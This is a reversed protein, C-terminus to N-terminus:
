KIDFSKRGASTGDFSVEVAYPGKPWPTPKLIHFETQAPGTPALQQTDEAVLLTDKGDQFTWRATLATGTSAGESAIAVYITDRPGFSAQPAVVKKDPTLAKGLEFSVVRFPGPGPPEAPPPPAEAKKQCGPAVLVAVALSLLWLLRTKRM